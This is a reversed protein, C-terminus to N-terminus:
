GKRGEWEEMGMCIDSLPIDIALLTVLHLSHM